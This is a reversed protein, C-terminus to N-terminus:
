YHSYSLGVAKGKSRSNNVPLRDACSNRLL